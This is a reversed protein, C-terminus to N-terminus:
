RKEVLKVFVLLCGDEQDRSHWLRMTRRELLAFGSAEVERRVDEEACDRFHRAPQNEKTHKPHIFLKGDDSLVARVDAYLQARKAQEMLHLVDFLLVANFSMAAFGAKVEALSGCVRINRIGRQTMNRLLSQTAKADQEVAVVEGDSGVVQAIPLAYAGWNCGFDLVRAGRGIGLSRVLEVGDADLWRRKSMPNSVVAVAVLPFVIDSTCCPIWVALFLFFGMLVVTMVDLSPGVALIMHFLSAWTSLLVHGAHPFQTKPRAFALLCGLMALPNVLWWKEIFGIHLGRNPMDLLWEGVYPILNDSLTAIGVSGLFGVIFTPWVGTGGHRRYIGATVLASLFVHLPHFTWFLVSSTERSVGTHVLLAMIVIGTLTGFATFPAHRKLELSITRIAKRM